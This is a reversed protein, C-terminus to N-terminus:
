KYFATHFYSVVGAEESEFREWAGFQAGLGNVVETMLQERSATDKFVIYISKAEESVAVMGSCKNGSNDCEVTYTRLYGVDPRVNLMCSTANDDKLAM